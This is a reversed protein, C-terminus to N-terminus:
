NKKYPLEDANDLIGDGDIDDDLEIKSAAIQEASTGKKFFDAKGDGDTDVYAINSQPFADYSAFISIARLKAENKEKLTRIKNLTSIVKDYKNLVAYAHVVSRYLENAKNTNAYIDNIDNSIKDVLEEAKDFDKTSILTNVISDNFSINNTREFLGITLNVRNKITNINNEPLTSIVSNIFNTATNIQGYNYLRKAIKLTDKSKSIYKDDSNDLSVNGNLNVFENVFTTIEANKLELDDITEIINKYATAKYTEDTMNKAMNMAKVLTEDRKVTNNIEDYHKIIVPLGYKVNLIYKSLGLQTLTWPRNEMDKLLTDFFTAMVNVDYAKLIRATDLYALVDRPIHYRLIQNGEGPTNYDADDKEYSKNQRYNYIFDMGKKNDVQTERMFYAAAVGAEIASSTVDQGFLFNPAIYGYSKIKGDKQLLTEVENLNGMLATLATMREAYPAYPKDGSENGTSTLTSYNTGNDSDIKKMLNILEQTKAKEKIIPGIHAIQIINYISSLADAKIVHENSVYNAALTFIDKAENIKNDEILDLVMNTYATAIGTYLEKNKLHPIINSEYFSIVKQMKDKRNLKYFDYFLSTYLSNDGKEINPVKKSIYDKYKAFAKDLLDEAKKIENDLKYEKAMNIYASIQSYDGYINSILIDKSEDYLGAKNFGKSVSVYTPNLLSDGYSDKTLNIAKGIGSKDSYMYYEIRAANDDGLVKRYSSSDYIALSNIKSIDIPNKELYINFESENKDLITQIESKISGDNEFSPTINLDSLAKRIHTSKVAKYKNEIKRLELLKEAITNFNALESDSYSSKQFVKKLYKLTDLKIGEKILSTPDKVKDIMTIEDKLKQKEEDSINLVNNIFEDLNNASEKNDIDFYGTPRDLSDKKLAIKTIKKTIRTLKIDSTPDKILEEKSINFFRAVEDKADESNTNYNDYSAVATTLPTIYINKNEFLNYPAKLILGSLDDGGDQGGKAELVCKSLDFSSPINNITFSGDEKSLQNTTFIKNNECKLSVAAGEIAPDIVKGSVSKTSPTSSSGGGGGGGCGVLIAATLISMTIFKTNM